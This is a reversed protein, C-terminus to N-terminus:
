EMERPPTVKKKLDKLRHPVEKLGNEMTEVRGSAVWFMDTAVEEVFSLDHAVLVIAGSFSVLSNALAELADLDLHSNPEDLLLLAPAAFCLEAFAYAVRQGGSLQALPTHTALQQSGLGFSGLHKWLDATKATPYKETLRQLPSREKEAGLETVIHQQFYGIQSTRRQISGGTPTWADYLLNLLTSKGQEM